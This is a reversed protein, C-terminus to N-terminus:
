RGVQAVKRLSELGLEFMQNMTERQASMLETQEAQMKQFLAMNKTNAESLADVFREAEKVWMGTMPTFFESEKDTKNKESM